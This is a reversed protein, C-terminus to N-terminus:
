RVLAQEMKMTMVMTMDRDMVMMLGGLGMTMTMGEIRGADINLDLQGTIDGELEMEMPMPAASDAVMEQRMPGEVFLLAHRAGDRLELRDFRYTFEMTQNVQAVGGLPISKEVPVTWTAGWRVPEQPLELSLGSVIEQIAGLARGMETDVDPVEISVIEGRTTMTIRQTLGEIMEVGQAMAGFMGPGDIEVSDIVMSLHRTDGDAQLVTQTAHMTQQMTTPSGMMAMDPMEIETEMVTRYHSVQGVPPALRLLVADDPSPPAPTSTGSCATLGLLALLIVHRSM